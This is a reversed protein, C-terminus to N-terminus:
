ICEGRIYPNGDRGVGWKEVPLNAIKWHMDADYHDAGRLQIHVFKTNPTRPDCVTKIGKNNTKGTYTIYRNWENDLEVWNLKQMMIHVYPQDCTYFANLNTCKITSVYEKFPIWLDRAKKMGANSYLVVGSNYVKLLGNEDRPLDINWKSKVLNAWQKESTRNTRGGTRANRLAPQLPETCIGIDAAFGEFINDNVGDLAFVDTDAFLVNDYEHFKETFIPKFAGYHPSYSGLNTVFRPNEEFVYDAGIREAYAKMNDVGARVGPLINGDWYQYIINKM